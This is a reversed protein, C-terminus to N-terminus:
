SRMGRCVTREFVEVVTELTRAVAPSLGSGRELSAPQVGLVWARAGLGEAYQALVALPVRHTSTGIRSSRLDESGALLLSGPAGGFDVADAFVLEQCGGQVAVGVWREPAVGVDLARLAEPAPEDAQAQARGFRHSLQRALVPGFGDDGCDPNGAGLVWLRRGRWSQLQSRLDEM